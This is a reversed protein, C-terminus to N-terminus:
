VQGMKYKLDFMPTFIVPEEIKKKETTKIEPRKRDLLEMFRLHERRAELEEKYEREAQIMVRRFMSLTQDQVTARDKRKKGM